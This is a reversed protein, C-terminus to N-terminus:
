DEWFYVDPVYRYRATGDEQLVIAMVDLRVANFGPHMMLYSLAMRTYRSRKHRDVAVEPLVGRGFSPDRRTKVEVLVLTEGEIAIIDAEGDRCRWNREVIQLGHRDLYAAALAEGELGVERSTLSGVAKQPYRRRYGEPVAEDLVM